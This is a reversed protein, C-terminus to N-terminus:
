SSAKDVNASFSKNTRSNISACRLLKSFEQLSIKGDGDEDAEEIEVIGELSGKVQAFQSVCPHNPSRAKTLRNLLCTNFFIVVFQM